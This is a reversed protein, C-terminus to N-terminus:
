HMVLIFLFYLLPNEGPGSHRNEAELIVSHHFQHM